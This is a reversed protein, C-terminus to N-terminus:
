IPSTGLSSSTVPSTGLSSSTVPSTGLVSGTTPTNGLVSGTTPTNGLVSGTTQTFPTTNENPLPASALDRLLFDQSRFLGSLFEEFLEGIGGIVNRQALGVPASTLNNLEDDALEFLGGATIQDMRADTLEEALAASALIALALSSIIRM